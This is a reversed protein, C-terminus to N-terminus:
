RVWPVSELLPMVGTVWATVNNVYHSDSQFGFPLPMVGTVWATVYHSDSQFGFPMVFVGRM